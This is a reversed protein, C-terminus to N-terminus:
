HYYAHANTTFRLSRDFWHTIHDNARRGIFLMPLWPVEHAGTYWFSSRISSRQVKVPASSYSCAVGMSLRHWPMKVSQDIKLTTKRKYFFPLEPGTVCHSWNAEQSQDHCEWPLTMGLFNSRFIFRDIFVAMVPICHLQMSRSMPEQGQHHMELNRGSPSWKFWLLSAKLYKDGLLCPLLSSSFHRDM